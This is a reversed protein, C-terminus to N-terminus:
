PELLDAIPIDYLWALQAASEVTIARDGREYAALTVANFRGHSLVEVARRTLRQGERAQRLRQGFRRAREDPQPRSAVADSGIM